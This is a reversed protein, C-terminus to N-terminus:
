LEKLKKYVSLVSEINEWQIRTLREHLRSFGWDPLMVSLIAGLCAKHRFRRKNLYPEDPLLNIFNNAEDVLQRDEDSHSKISKILFTELNGESDPPLTIPLVNLKYSEAPIKRLNTKFDSWQGLQLNRILELDSTTTWKEILEVCETEDRQDRDFFLVIREFRNIPNRESRTRNIVHGLKVPIQEIGGVGWIALEQNPKKPHNYWNLVENGQNIQFWNKMNKKIRSWKIYSWGFKRELFYSILIADTKGECLIIRKM